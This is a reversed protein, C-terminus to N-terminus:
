GKMEFTVNQIQATNSANTASWQLTLGFQATSSLDVTVESFGESSIAGGAANFHFTGNAASGIAIMTGSVLVKSSAGAITRFFVILPQNYTMFMLNTVSDTIPVAPTQAITTGGLTLLMKMTPSAATSSHKGKINIEMCMGAALKTGDITRSGVVTGGAFLDGSSVNGVATCDTASYIIGGLRATGGGKGISFVKQTSDLWLDGNTPSGPASIATGTLQGSAGIAWNTAGALFGSSNYQLQTTSGAAPIDTASAITLVGTATTNKLIGTALGSLAQEASLTSDPTQTIYTATTPAGGGGGGFTAWSLNGSGDTSLGKGSNGAQSPLMGTLLNAPTIKLDTGSAAMTTVTTDVFPIWSAAAFTTATTLDTIKTDAM